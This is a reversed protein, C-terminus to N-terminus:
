QVRVNIGGRYSKRKDFPNRYVGLLNALSCVWRNYQEDLQVQERDKGDSNITLEGLERVQLLELNEVKQREIEDLIAIHQRVRPLAAELVRQMAGEVIFQTEVSAPTGLVFTQADQVNLYGLHHRISVKEEENLM